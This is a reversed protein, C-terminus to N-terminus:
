CDEPYELDLVMLASPNILHVLYYKCVFCFPVERIARMQEDVFGTDIEWRYGRRMKCMGTPRYVDCNFNAGGEYAAIVSSRNRPYSFGAIDDPPYEEQLDPINCLGPPRGSFVGSTLRTAVPSAILRMVQGAKDKKPLFLASGKPFDGFTVVDTGDTELTLVDGAQATLRLPPSMKFSDRNLNPARLFVRAGPIQQELGNWWAGQDFALTVQVQKAITGTALPAKIDWVTSSRAIREWNWKIRGIDITTNGPATAVNSLHTANAHREIFDIIFQQDPKGSGAFGGEYEEDLGLVHGLEHAFVATTYPADFDPPNITPDHDLQPFTGTVSLVRSQPRSGIVVFDFGAVGGLIDDDILFVVLGRDSGGERWKATPNFNSAATDNGFRLTQIYDEIDNAFGGAAGNTRRRDPGIEFFSWSPLFWSGPEDPDAPDPDSLRRGRMHGFVTDKPRLFRDIRQEKWRDFGAQTLRNPDFTMGPLIPMGAWATKAQALTQANLPGFIGAVRMIVNISYQGSVEVERATQFQALEGPYLTGDELVPPGISIGPEPSPEFATWVNFSEDLYGYPSQSKTLFLTNIIRTIQEDFADERLATYGEAIFLLNRRDDIQGSGHRLNLIRRETDVKERVHVRVKQAPLSGIQVQADAEKGAKVGTLRGQSDITFASTDLSQFQVYPHLSVDAIPSPSGADFQAFVSLVYNSSSERVTARNNAIWFQQVKEHVSVRIVGQYIGNADVLQLHIFTDGAKKPTILGNAVSIITNDFRLYQTSPDAAIDRFGTATFEFVQLQVTTPAPQLFLHVDRGPVVNM